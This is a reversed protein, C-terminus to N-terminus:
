MNSLRSRIGSARSMLISVETPSNLSISLISPATDMSPMQRRQRATFSNNSPACPMYSVLHQNLRSISREPIRELSPLILRFSSQIGRKLNLTNQSSLMLKQRTSSYKPSKSELISPLSLNREKLFSNGPFSTKLLFRRRLVPGRMTSKQIHIQVAVRYLGIAHHMAMLKSFVVVFPLFYITICDGSSGSV